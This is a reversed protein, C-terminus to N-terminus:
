HTPQTTPEVHFFFNTPLHFNSWGDVKKSEMDWLCVSFFPSFFAQWKEDHNDKWSNLSSVRSLQNQLFIAGHKM